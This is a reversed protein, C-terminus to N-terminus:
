PSKIITDTIKKLMIWFENEKRPSVSHISNELKEIIFIESFLEVYEEYFGGFPPGQHDFRKNFLLGIICGDERLIKHTKKVYQDRLIPSIACFFTQEILVDFFLDKKLEFFNNKLIQDEPFNPCNEKFSSIAETSSDLYYINSFGHEFGYKVEHGKGAGPVLIQLDKDMQSDFWKKIPPSIVGLDWGTNNELYRNNWFSENLSDRIM